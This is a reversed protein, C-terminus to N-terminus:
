PLVLPPLEAILNADTPIPDLGEKVRAEKAYCARWVQSRWKRFALGEQQYKPEEPEDAYSVASLLNDYGKAKAQTDMHEQVVATFRAKLQAEQEEPSLGVYVLKDDQIRFLNGGRDFFNAHEADSVVIHPTPTPTSYKTNVGRFAVVEGTIPDYIAYYM